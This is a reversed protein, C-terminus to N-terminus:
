LGGLWGSLPQPGGVRKDTHDNDAVEILIYQDGSFVWYQNSTDPAQMVADIRASFQPLDRFAPWNSLPQPGHIRKDTHDNDAVEILIYQDGSFVWYQNSTDPAQM